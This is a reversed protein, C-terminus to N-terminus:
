LHWRICFCLTLGIHGSASKKFGYRDWGLMFFLADINQPGSESFHVVHGVSRVPHLFVVYGLFSVRDMCFTCKAFPASRLTILYIHMVYFMLFLVYIILIDDFYVVVFQGIFARLVENMLRKFTSPANTLGFANSVV